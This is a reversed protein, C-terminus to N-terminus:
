CREHSGGDTNGNHTGGPDVTASHRPGDKKAFRGRPGMNERAARRRMEALCADSCVLRGPLATQGCIFCVRRFCRWLTAKRGNLRIVQREVAGARRWRGLISVVMDVRAAGDSKRTRQALRWIIEPRLHRGATAALYDTTHWGGDMMIRRLETNVSNM